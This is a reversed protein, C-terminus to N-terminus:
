VRSRRVRVQQLQAFVPFRQVALLAAGLVDTALLRERNRTGLMLNNLLLCANLQVTTSSPHKVMATVAKQAGGMASVINACRLSPPHSLPPAPSNTVVSLLSYFFPQLWVGVPCLATASQSLAHTAALPCQAPALTPHPPTFRQAASPVCRFFNTLTYLLFCGAAQVEACSGHTEFAIYVRDVGRPLRAIQAAGARARPALRPCTHVRAAADGFVAACGPAESCSLM